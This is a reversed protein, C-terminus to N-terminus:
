LIMYYILSPITSLFVSTILFLYSFALQKIIHILCCIFLLVFGKGKILTTGAPKKIKHKKPAHKM